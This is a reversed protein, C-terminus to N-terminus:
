RNYMLTQLTNPEIEQFGNDKLWSTIRVGHSMELFFNPFEVIFCNIDIDDIFSDMKLGVYTKTLPAFVYRFHITNESNNGFNLIYHVDKNLNTITVFTKM